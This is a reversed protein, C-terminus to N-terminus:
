LNLTKNLPFKISRAILHITSMQFSSIREEKLHSVHELRKSMVDSHLLFVSRVDDVVEDAQPFGISRSSFGDLCEHGLAELGDSQAQLSRQIHQASDGLVSRDNSLLDTLIRADEPCILQKKINSTNQHAKSFLNQFISDQIATSVTIILQLPGGKNIIDLHAM